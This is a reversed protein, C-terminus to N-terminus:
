DNIIYAHKFKLKTNQRNNTTVYGNLFEDFSQTGKVGHPTSTYVIGNSLDVGTIVILHASSEIVEGQDNKEEWYYLGYLPGNNKLTYYLDTISEIAVEAGANSPLRGRNWTREQNARARDKAIKVARKTAEEETYIQGSRYSEVMVQCFAWCLRYKHQHYAPVDYYVVGSGGGDAMMVSVTWNAACGCNDQLNVPNDLCYAYCNHGLVGQGTSLLVDASIFRGTTPDYYRSQLYYFGTEWDYVYGRYRFPQILGLSSAYDGTTSVKKGWTDYTYVVAEQGNAKLLKVIDGQANRLYYFETGNYNVSIVDGAADYSFLLKATGRQMGILVSGNYYYDTVINNCVKKQRLGDENYEFTMSVTGNSASTLQKGRWGFTYGRYTTPNGMEDYVITQGNYETLQDGWATNTYVYPVSTPAPVSLDETDITTYPYIDKSTINGWDDYHYVITKNTVQNNERTLRSAADYEYSISTSGQTISTINGVNDYTYSYAADSGNQYTSVLGTTKNTANGPVYTLTTDYGSALGLTRKQLRGIPDYTNTIVTGSALTTTKARNDGDYTYVTSWTSGLVSCTLKSLNNCEDYQYGYSSLVSDYSQITYIGNNVTFTFAREKSAMCRGAHDYEFFSVRKTRYNRLEYLDGEGNYIMEYTLTYASEEPDTSHIDQAQEIQKVRDLDDYIYRASFGNGYTVASLRFESDYTNTSLTMNGVKTNIPRNWADYTLNYTTSGRTITELKGYTDYGYTVVGLGTSTLSALRHMATADSYVYNASHGNPDTITKTQRTNNDYGYTVTKGRADTVSTTLGTTNNYSTETETYLASDGVKVKTTQGKTNYTYTSKVDEATKITKVSHTGTYYTYETTNGRPDTSSTVNNHSDYEFSNQQGILTTYGTLNGKSDYAYAQSFTEHYLQIGDVFTEGICRTVSAKIRIKSYNYSAVAVGSAFQWEKTDVAFSISASSLVTDSSNLFEVTLRKVGIPVKHIYENNDGYNYWQESETPSTSMMWAGFSYTDGEHGDVSITQSIYTEGKMQRAFRFVNDGLYAPHNISNSSSLTVVGTDTTYNRNYGNVGNSFDSNELMNYRNPTPAKELQVSDAHMVGSNAPVVISVTASNSTAKFTVIARTWDNNTATILDGTFTNSGTTAQVQGSGEGQFYASFTYTQGSVVSVTQSLTLQSSSNSFKASRRGDKRVSSDVTIASGSKTWNSLSSSSQEFGHNKLLNLVTIQLKSVASLQTVTQPATNYAAYMARGDQDTVSIPQGLSDLMYITKHLVADTVSMESIVTKNFGYGFLLGKGKEEGVYETVLRIGNRPNYVYRLNYGDVNTARALRHDVYRFGVSLEDAYTVTSLNYIDTYTYTLDLDNPATLNTLHGSVDYTLTLAQGPTNGFLAERVSSIRLNTIDTQDVYQIETANGNEDLVSTLRGNTLTTDCTFILKNGGKDEITAETGDFILESDKDLENVYFGDEGEKYYHRTGDGDTYEYYITSTTGNEVPFRVLSQAYNLRWGYGYGLDTEKDNVNYVHSLSIPLAGNTIGGDSFTWSFNGSALNVSGTGARGASQSYYTWNSELGTSNRYIISFSPLEANQVTSDSSYFVVYGEAKLLLGQNTSPDECWSKYLSTIDFDSIKGRRAAIAFTSATTDYPPMDSYTVTSATWDDTIRHGTVLINNYNNPNHRGLHVTANLIIDGSKLAVPNSFKLLTYYTSTSPQSVYLDQATSFNTNPSTSVVYTDEVNGAFPEQVDPDLIIPYVRSEDQLWKADPILTYAYGDETEILRVEIASSVEGGADYMVPSLIEFIAEGSEDIFVIRGDKEEAKLGNTTLLTAYAIATEPAHELVIQESLRKGSLVYHVNLGTEPDKYTLESTLEEPYRLLMDREEDTEPEKHERETIEAKADTIQLTEYVSGEVAPDTDDPEASEPEEAIPEESPVEETDNGSPPETDESDVTETEETDSTEAGETEASGESPYEAPEASDEETEEASEEAPDVANDEDPAATEEASEADDAAPEESVDEAEIPEIDEESAFLVDETFRWSLIHEKSEVTILNDANFYPSFSVIFDNAKNRYAQTGDELTILELTNDITEWAEDKLYHIPDSYVVAEQAGDARRFVKVSEDRDERLEGVLPSYALSNDQSFDNADAYAEIAETQAAEEADDAIAKAPLAIYSVFLMIASLLVGTIRQLWKAM